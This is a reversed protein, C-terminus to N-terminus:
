EKPHQAKSIKQFKGLTEIKFSGEPMPELWKKDENPPKLTPIRIVKKVLIM